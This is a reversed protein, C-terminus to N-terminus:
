QSYTISLLRSASSGSLVMSCIAIALIYTNCWDPNLKQPAARKAHQDDQACVRLNKCIMVVHRLYQAAFSRVVHLKSQDSLGPVFRLLLWVTCAVDGGSLVRM